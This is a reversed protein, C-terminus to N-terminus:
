IVQLNINKSPNEIIKQDFNFNMWRNISEGTGISLMRAADSCSIDAYAKELCSAIESRINIKCQQMIEIDSRVNLIAIDNTVTSEGNRVQRNDHSHWHLVQLVRCTRKGQGPAGEFCLYQFYNSIFFLCTWFYWRTIAARWSTSSSASRTSSTSMTRCRRPRCGRWSRTFNQWATRLSFDAVTSSYVSHLVQSLLCLLNLGLLQYQFPSDPLLGQLM